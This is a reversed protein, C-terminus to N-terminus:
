LGLERRAADYEEANPRWRFVALAFRAREENEFRKIAATLEIQMEKKEPWIWWQQAGCRKCTHAPEDYVCEDSHRWQEKCSGNMCRHDHEGKTPLGAAPKAVCAELLSSTLM